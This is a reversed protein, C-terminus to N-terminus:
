LFQADLEDSFYRSHSACINLPIINISTIISMEQLPRNRMTPFVLNAFKANEHLMESLQVLKHRMLAEACKNTMPILRKGCITKPSHVEFYYGNEGQVYCMARNVFIARNEFELLMDELVQFWYNRVRITEKHADVAEKQLELIRSGYGRCEKQHLEKLRVYREGSELEKNRTQAAKLCCLLTIRDYADPM